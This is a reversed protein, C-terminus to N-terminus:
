DGYKKTSNINRGTTNANRGTTNAETNSIFVNAIFGSNNYIITENQCGLRRFIPDSCYFQMEEISISRDYSKEKDVCFCM